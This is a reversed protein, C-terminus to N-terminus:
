FSYPFAEYFLHISNDEFALGLSGQLLGWSGTWLLSRTLLISM